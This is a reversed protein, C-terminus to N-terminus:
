DAPGAPGPPRGPRAAARRRAEELLPRAGALDPVLELAKGLKRAADAFDEVKLLLRADRLLEEARRRDAAQRKLEVELGAAADRLEPLRAALERAQAAAGRAAELDGAAALQRARALLSEVQGAQAQRRAEELRQWQERLPPSAGFRVVAEDLLRSARELERRDLHASVEAVTQALREARRRERGQQAAATEIEVALAQVAPNEPELARAEEVREHAAALEGKAALQRAEMVLAGVRALRTEARLADLRQRLPDWAEAEGLEAVAAALLEGGRDLDGRELHHGVELARREIRATRRREAAQGRSREQMRERRERVGPADPALSEARRLMRSAVRCKDGAALEDIEALLGAVRRELEEAALERAADARAAEELAAADRAAMEWAAVERAERAARDDDASLAGAEAAVEGARLGGAAGAEATSEPPEAQRAAPGAEGAEARPEPLEAERVAPGAAGVGARPEPAEAQRAAPAAAGAEASSEPAKAQRAAPGAAGAKPAPPAAAAPAPVEPAAEVPRLAAPGAQKADQVAPRPAAPEAGAGQQRAPAAAEREAAAAPAGPTAGLVQAAAEGGSAEEERRGPRAPRLALEPAVTTAEGAKTPLGALGRADHVALQLSQVPTTHPGFHQDLRHQTSSSRAAPLAGTADLDPALLRKWDNGALDDPRRFGALTQALERASAYREDPNKALAKLVVARLEEPLRGQRDTEAFPLPPRFLHGAILSSADSGSIPYVGTLLEYLVVGFSYLDCRADTATTGAAGFQEPSAYRLKGLFTGTRTLQAEAGEMVKAIGLDILKVQPNGDADECLMLNDPSIDRHVFGKGHLYGLARLSQQAIELALGLPPPGAAALLEELTKGAIYEMVIFATDDDDLTFDYLHAINPHRLKIALRAERIFRAKFEADDVLQPRMLKVVRVEDLLRHRVLYIAGMGGERIKHLIEYKGEIRRQPNASM